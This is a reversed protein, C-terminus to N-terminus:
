EKTITEDLNLLGRAVATWAALEARGHRGSSSRVLADAAKPDREFRAHEQKQFEVLAALEDRDPPRTLCRRFLERATEETTYQRGAMVSRALGQAIEVFMADNLL